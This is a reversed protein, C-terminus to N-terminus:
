ESDDNNQKKNDQNRKYRKDAVTKRYEKLSKPNKSIFSDM